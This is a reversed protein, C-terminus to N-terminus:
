RANTGPTVPPDLWLPVRCYRRGDGGRAPKGCAKLAGVPDNAAMLRAWASAAGPGTTMAAAVMKGAILGDNRGSVYGAGYSVSFVALALALAVGGALLVTRLKVSWMQRTVSQEVLRGIRPALTEVLDASRAEVQAVASKAIADTEERLTQSIQRREAERTRFMVAVTEMAQVMAALSHAAPDGSLRAYRASDRLGDVAEDFVSLRAAMGDQGDIEQAESM